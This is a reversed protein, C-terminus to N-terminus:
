PEKAPQQFIAMELNNFFLWRAATRSLGKTRRLAAVGGRHKRRTRHDSWKQVVRAYQQFIAMEGGGEFARENPTASSRRRPAKQPHSSGVMKSCGSRITSFVAM